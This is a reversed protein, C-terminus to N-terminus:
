GQPLLYYSILLGAVMDGFVKVSWIKLITFYETM